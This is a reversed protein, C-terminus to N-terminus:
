QLLKEAEDKTLIECLRRDRDMRCITVGAIESATVMRKKLENRTNHREENKFSQHYHVWNYFLPRDLQYQQHFSEGNKVLYFSLLDREFKIEAGAQASELSLALEHSFKFVGVEINKQSISKNTCPDVLTYEKFIVPLGNEFAIITSIEKQDQQCNTPKLRIWSTQDVSMGVEVKDLITSKSIIINQAEKMTIVAGHSVLSMFLSVTILTFKM